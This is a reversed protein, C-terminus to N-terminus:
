DENNKRKNKEKEIKKDLVIKFKSPEKPEEKKFNFTLINKATEFPKKIKEMDAEWGTMLLEYRNEIICRVLELAIQLIFSVISLATFVVSLLSIEVVTYYVSYFMMALVLGKVFLKLISQLRRVKNKTARDKKDSKSFTFIYFILYLLSVAGLLYNAWLIGRSTIISYVIYFLYFIQGSLGLLFGVKKFDDGIKKIATRTYDFM